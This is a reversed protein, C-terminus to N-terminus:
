AGGGGGEVGPEAGGGCVKRWFHSFIALESWFYASIPQFESINRFYWGKQELPGARLKLVLHPNLVLKECFGNLMIFFVKYHPM